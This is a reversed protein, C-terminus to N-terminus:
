QVPFNYCCHVASGAQSITPPPPEVLNDEETPLALVLKIAKIRNNMLKLETSVAPAIAPTVSLIAKMLQDQMALLEGRTTVIYQRNAQLQESVKEDRGYWPKREEPSKQPPSEEQHSRHPCLHL